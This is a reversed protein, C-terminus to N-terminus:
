RRCPASGRPAARRRPVGGTRAAGEYSWSGDGDRSCRRASPSASWPCATPPWPWRASAAEPRPRGRARRRVPAGRGAPRGPRPRRDARRRPPRGDSRDAGHRRRGVRGGRRRRGLGAAPGRLHGLGQAGVQPPPALRRGPLHLPRGRVVAAMGPDDASARDLVMLGEVQGGSRSSGNPRGSCWGSPTSTPPRRPCCWWTRARGLRGAAGADFTCGATWESGGVLALLASRTWPGSKCAACPPRSRGGTTVAWYGRAGHRDRPYSDDPGPDHTRADGLHRSCRAVLHHQAAAALGRRSAMTAPSALDSALCTSFPLRVSASASSIAARTM